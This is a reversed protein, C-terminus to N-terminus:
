ALARSVVVTHLSLAARTDPLRDAEELAAFERRDRRWHTYEHYAIRSLWTSLRAEGRYRGLSEWAHAFAQQTLDEAAERHGTLSRLLGYVRDYNQTVLREGAARDGKLIRAVWARDRM